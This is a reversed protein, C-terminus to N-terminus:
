FFSFHSSNRVHSQLQALFAIFFAVLNKRQQSNHSVNLLCKWKIFMHNSNESLHKAPQSTKRTDQHEDWRTKM